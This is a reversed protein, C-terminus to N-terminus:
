HERVAFSVSFADKKGRLILLIALQQYVKEFGGESSSVSYVPLSFVDAKDFSLELTLKTFRDVITFSSLGEFVRQENLPIEKTKDKRYIDNPSPLSVNFEIGFDYDNLINKKSFKYHAKFGLLSSFEISKIFDLDKAGYQCGVLASKKDGKAYIGYLENGLSGVGNQRNFDSITIGKELLHDVLMLREYEDYILFKDLDKDKQKVIDHITAIGNEQNINEVIKKHYSEERRTITNVLNIAPNRLSFELIAGGKPSISCILQSNKVTIEKNTDLDIDEETVSIGKGGYKEDFLNEASILNKYVAARIHGLYFGGFVGHWYGCNTQAKYLSVFTKKDKDFTATSNIKRSLSLMRKQMYNLRPYKRYFNRFFGGRIFGGFKEIQNNAKLSNKLEEYSFFSEPELVWEGMEEYSATPLYVIGNTSFKEIAQHPAITEIVSSESLLSLFTKLWEKKYVWDYTNPWLGFKEGDDFLTVLVDQDNVTFSSLLDIAENPKSFPIKYRLSKSIPFIFIPRGADESTYYGFFEKQNLGAYRFHTDDLFTYNLGCENIIRALYPEWVREATWIGKPTKSFEKKIFENMLRIQGYKDEDNIIPLIPEYYGGSAIEVQGKKALKKLIELYEKAHESMWDYLPGSNHISFKVEPFKELLKLFPLYCREYAEKFIHPFNGVPQHNHVGFIFYVKGM